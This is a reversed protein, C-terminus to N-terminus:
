VPSGDAPPEDVSPGAKPRAQDQPDPHPSTVEPGPGSGAGPKPDPFKVVNQRSRQEPMAFTPPSTDQEDEPEADMSFQSRLDDSARRFERMSKGLTRSIEPLRKPGFVILAIILIVILESPGVGFM